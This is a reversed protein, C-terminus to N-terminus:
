AEKEETEGFIRIVRRQKDEIRDKTVLNKTLIDCMAWMERRTWEFAADFTDFIECEDLTKRYYIEASWRGDHMKWIKVNLPWAYFTYFGEFEEVLIM